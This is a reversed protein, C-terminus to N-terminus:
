FVAYSIVLHSSNLRTSKRDIRSRLNPTRIWEGNSSCFKQRLSGGAHASPPVVAPPYIERAFYTSPKETRGDVPPCAPLEPRGDSRFLPPYPFLTSRPPRRIM